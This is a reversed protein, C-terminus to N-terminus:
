VMMMLLPLLRALVLEIKNGLSNKKQNGTERRFIRRKIAENNIHVPSSCHMAHSKGHRM